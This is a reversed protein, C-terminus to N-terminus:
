IQDGPQGAKKQALRPTINFIKNFPKDTIKM